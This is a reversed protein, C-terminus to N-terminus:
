LDMTYTGSSAGQVLSQLVVVVSLTVTDNVTLSVKVIAQPILTNKCKSTIMSDITTQQLYTLYAYLTCSIRM